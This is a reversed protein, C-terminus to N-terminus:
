VLARLEKVVEYRTQKKILPISSFFASLLIILIASLLSILNIHLVIPIIEQNVLLPKIFSLSILTEIIGLPIGTILSIAIFIMLESLVIKKVKSPNAGLALLLAYERRRQQLIYEISIFIYIIGILALFISTILVIIWVDPIYQLIFLGTYTPNIKDPNVSLVEDMSQLQITIEEMNAGKSTSALFLTGNTVGLINELIDKNLLIFEEIYRNNKPNSGHALGLAPASNSFGSINFTLFLPGAVFDSLYISEDMMFGLRNALYDSIILGFLDNNLKTLAEEATSNVFSTDIWRGIELYKLPDIGFLEIAQSAIHTKLTYFGMVENIGEINKVKEEFAKINTTTTQIRIDAGQLYAYEEKMNNTITTEITITYILFSSILLLFLTLDTFSKERRKINKHVFFGNEKFLFQYIKKIKALIDNIFLSLFFTVFFMVGLFFLFTRVSQQRSYSSFVSNLSSNSFEIMQLIFASLILIFFIVFLSKNIIKQGKKSILFTEKIDKKIFNSLQLFTSVFYIGLVLISSLEIEFVPIKLYHYFEVFHAKNFFGKSSFGPLLGATLIGLGISIFWSIIGIVLFESFFM